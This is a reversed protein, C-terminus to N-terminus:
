FPPGCGDALLALLGLLSISISISAGARTDAPVAAFTPVRPQM